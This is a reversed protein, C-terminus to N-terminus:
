KTVNKGGEDNKKIKQQEIEEQYKRIFQELEAKKIQTLPEREMLVTGLGKNRYKKVLEEAIICLEANNSACHGLDRTTKKLEAQITQMEGTIKKLKDELDKNNREMELIEKKNRAYAEESEKKGRAYAEDSERVKMELTQVQEKLKLLQGGLAKKQNLLKDMEEQYQQEISVTAENKEETMRKQTFTIKRNAERIKDQFVKQEKKVQIHSVSLGIILGIALAAIPIIIKPLWSLRKM